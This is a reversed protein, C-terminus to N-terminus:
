TVDKRKKQKKKQALIKDKQTASKTKKQKKKECPTIEDKRM